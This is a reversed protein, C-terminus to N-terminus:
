AFNPPSMMTAPPNVLAPPTDAVLRARQFPEIHNGRPPGFLVTSFTCESAPWSKTPPLKVRIPPSAALRMASHSPPLQDARPLPRELVTFLMATELLPSKYTTPENRTAPSTAAACIARQLLPAQDPTPTFRPLPIFRAM